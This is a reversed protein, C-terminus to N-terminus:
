VKDALAPAKASFLNSFLWHEWQSNTFILPQVGGAVYLEIDNVLRKSL